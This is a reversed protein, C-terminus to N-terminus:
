DNDLFLEDLYAKRNQQNYADRCNGTGSRMISLCLGNSNQSEDHGRLLVCHGLEHFVVMERSLASARNWFTQDITVHNNIASGYQCMGAVGSERIEEIEASVELDNLDIKIGRIAAEDEFNAYHSWLDPDVNPFRQELTFSQKNCSLLSLITTISLAFSILKM